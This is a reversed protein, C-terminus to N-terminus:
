LNYCFKSIVILIFYSIFLIHDTYFKVLFYFFSFLRLKKLGLFSPKKSAM